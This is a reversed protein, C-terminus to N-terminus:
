NYFKSYFLFDRWPIEEDNSIKDSNDIVYKKKSAYTNYKKGYKKIKNHEFVDKYVWKPIKYDPYTVKNKSIKPNFGFVITISLFLIYFLMNILHKKM